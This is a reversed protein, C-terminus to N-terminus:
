IWRRTPFGANWDPFLPRNRERLQHTHRSYVRRLMRLHHDYGGNTLFEAIALKNPSATAINLVSKLQAM